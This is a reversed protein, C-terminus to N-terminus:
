KDSTSLKNVLGTLMRMTAELLIAAENYEKDSIYNLDRSLLLQTELEAGSGQATRLFQCFDKKSSRKSGESINSPISISARRMQSTLGYLEDKPFLKTLKYTILVLSYSQKWVNLEKYGSM